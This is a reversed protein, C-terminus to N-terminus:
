NVRFKGAQIAKIVADMKLKFDPTANGMGYYYDMLYSIVYCQSETLAVHIIREPM